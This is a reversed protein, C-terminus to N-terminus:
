NRLPKGKTLMHEIRDVTGQNHLLKMFEHVELDLLDQETLPKTWDANSGGTLVEALHGSVVIDYPTVQGAKAMDAVAMDLGARGSPGPLRM